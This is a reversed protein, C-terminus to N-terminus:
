EAWTAPVGQLHSAPLPEFTMLQFWFIASNGLHSTYSENKCSHSKLFCAKSRFGIVVIHPVWKSSIKGSDRFLPHWSRNPLPLKLGVSAPISTHSERRSTIMKNWFFDSLNEITKKPITILCYWNKTSFSPGVGPLKFLDESDEVQFFRPYVHAGTQPRVQLLWM